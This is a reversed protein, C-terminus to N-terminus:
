CEYLWYILHEAEHHEPDALYIYFVPKTDTTNSADAQRINCLVGHTYLVPSSATWKFASKYHEM